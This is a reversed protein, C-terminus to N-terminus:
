GPDHHRTTPAHNLRRGSSRGEGKSPSPPKTQERNYRFGRLAEAPLIHGQAPFRVKAMTAHCAYTVPAARVAAARHNGSSTCMMSLLLRRRGNRPASAPPSSRAPAASSPRPTSGTSAPPLFLDTVLTVALAVLGSASPLCTTVTVRFM